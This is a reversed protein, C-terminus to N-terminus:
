DYKNNNIKKLKNHFEILTKQILDWRKDDPKYPVYKIAFPYSFIGLKVNKQCARFECELLYLYWEPIEEREKTPYKTELVWNDFEFDPKVVLTIEDTIKMERKIEDGYKFKVGTKELIEKWQSEYAMGSIINRAGEIDITKPEFYNSPTLHGKILSYIDSSWYRNKQRQHNNRNVYKVILDDTKAM